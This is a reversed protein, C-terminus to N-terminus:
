YRSYSKEEVLESKLLDNISRKIAGREDNRIYVARALEIFEADFQRKAEKERLRDEVQWLAENVRRLEARMPALAATAALTPAVERSM